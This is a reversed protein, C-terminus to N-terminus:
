MPMLVMMQQRRKHARIGGKRVFAHGSVGASRARRNGATVRPHEAERDVHPRPRLHLRLDDHGAAPRRLLLDHHLLQPRLLAVNTHLCHAADRVSARSVSHAPRIKSGRLGERGCVMTVAQAAPLGRAELGDCGAEYALHARVAAARQDRGDAAGDVAGVAARLGHRGRYAAATLASCLRAPANSCECQPEFGVAIMHRRRGAAGTYPLVGHLTAETIIVATGAKVPTVNM